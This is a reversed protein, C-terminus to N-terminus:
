RAGGEVGPLEDGLIPVPVLSTNGIARLAPYRELFPELRKDWPM